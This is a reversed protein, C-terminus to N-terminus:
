PTTLTGFSLIVEVQISQGADVRIAAGNADAVPKQTFDTLTSDTSSFPTIFVSSTVLGINGDIDATATGSLILSGDGPLGLQAGPIVCPVSSGSAGCPSDASGGSELRIQWGNPSAYGSLVEAIAQEGSPLLANHFELHDDLSGDPNYVDITWAGHVGIGDSMPEASSEVSGGGCSAILLGIVAVLGIRRVRM